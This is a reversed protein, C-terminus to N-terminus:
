EGKLYRSDLKLFACLLESVASYFGFEDLKQCKQNFQPTWSLLHTSIFQEQEVLAEDMHKEQEFENSRIILNGLFDLEIALHDAPENLSEQVAVGHKAMLESIEKAPTDNLLGSEGIYMSAYPLASDRDSKLFLDCFDASLELQADERDQLRNLADVLSDVASKLTENEGLGALFSRIQPTQYQSLDQETLEKAFLSSLWWYIEARKENFTRIEQM